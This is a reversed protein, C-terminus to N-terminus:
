TAAFNPYIVKIKYFYAVLLLKISLYKDLYSFKDISIQFNDNYAIILKFLDIKIKILDIFWIEKASNIVSNNSLISPNISIM